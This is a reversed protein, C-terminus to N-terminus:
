VVSKRDAHTVINEMDKEFSLNYRIFPSIEAELAIRTMIKVAKVPHKGSATEGSLMIADTGDFIANAVDSAEARTPIPNSTMSELMQTATIVPKNAKIAKQIINKQITPVQEPKLEVGLDGRAVMICDAVELIEDLNDVAEPKEIKAIVPIDSGQKAIISKINKLDEAKRVFSLAFYDM